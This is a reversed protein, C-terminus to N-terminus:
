EWLQGMRALEQHLHATCSVHFGEWRGPTAQRHFDAEPVGQDVKMAEDGILSHRHATGGGMQGRRQLDKGHVM